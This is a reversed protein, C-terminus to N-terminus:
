MKKSFNMYKRGPKEGLSGDTVELGRVLVVEYDVEVGGMMWLNIVRTGGVGIGGDMLLEGVVMLIACSSVECTLM